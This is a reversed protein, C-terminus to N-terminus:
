FHTLASQKRNTNLDVEVEVQEYFLLNWAKHPLGVGSVLVGMLTIVQLMQWVLPEPPECPLRIGPTWITLGMKIHGSLAREPIEMNRPAILMGLWVKGAEEVKRSGDKHAAWRQPGLKRAECGTTWRELLLTSSTFIPKYYEIKAM